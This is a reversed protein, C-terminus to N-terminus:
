FYIDFILYIESLNGKLYIDFTLYIEDSLNVIFVGRSVRFFPLFPFCSIQFPSCFEWATEAYHLLKTQAVARITPASVLILIVYLTLLNGSMMVFQRILGKTLKTAELISGFLFFEEKKNYM